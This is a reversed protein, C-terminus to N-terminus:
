EGLTEELVPQLGRRKFRYIGYAVIAALLIVGFVAIIIWSISESAVAANGLFADLLSFPIGGVASVIVFTGFPFRALGAAYAIFDYMFSLVFRAALLIRWTAVRSMVHDVHDLSKKGAFKTIGARGFVRATWYNLAAGLTDGIVSLITGLWPGFLAGGALKISTGSMPAIVYTAAKLLVFVLPTWIGAREILTRFANTGGALQVLVMTVITFATIAIVLLLFRGLQPHHWYNKKSM